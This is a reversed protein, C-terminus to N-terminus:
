HASHLVDAADGVCVVIKLSILVECAVLLFADKVRYCVLDRMLPEAVQDGHFPPIVEPKVLRKGVHDRVHGAILALSHLIKGKRPIDKDVLLIPAQHYVLFVSRVWDGCIALRSAVRLVDKVANTVTFAGGKQM